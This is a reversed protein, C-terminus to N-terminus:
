FYEALLCRCSGGGNQEITTVDSAIMKYHADLVAKHEPTYNAEAQKSVLLVREKKDNITNLVNACMHGIEEFALDILVYPEINKDPSTLEQIILTREPEELAASCLLVHRDLLQLFCDTHYIPRGGSDKARMTVARWPRMSIKNLATVYAEIVPIHARESLCCYIKGNRHDYIVSGKGELYKEQAEFESLDIFHKCTKRLDAIIQDDREMRRSPYRMPCLTFVGDPILDSRQITFWDPFISDPALLTAQKYVTV